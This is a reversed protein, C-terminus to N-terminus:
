PDQPHRKLVIARFRGLHASNLRARVRWVSLGGRMTRTGHTRRADHARGHAARLAYRAQRSQSVVHHRPRPASKVVQILNALALDLADLSLMYSAFSGDWCFLVYNEDGDDDDGAFRWNRTVPAILGEKPDYIVSWMLSTQMADKVSSWAGYPQLTAAEAARYERMRARVAALDDSSLTSFALVGEGLSAALTASPLGASVPLTVPAAGILRICRSRLGVGSGRVCAASSREGGVLDVAGARGHVFAPVLIAVFDSQNAASGPAVTVTLALQSSDEKLVAAAISINM